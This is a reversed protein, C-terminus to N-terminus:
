HKDREKGEIDERERESTRREASMSSEERSTMRNREASM